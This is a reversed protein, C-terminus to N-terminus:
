GLKEKGAVLTFGRRPKMLGADALSLFDLALMVDSDALRGDTTLRVPLGPSETPVGAVGFFTFVGLTSSCTGDQRARYLRLAM